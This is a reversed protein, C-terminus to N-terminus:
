QSHTHQHAEWAARDFLYEPASASWAIDTFKVVSLIEYTGNSTLVNNDSVADTIMGREDLVVDELMSPPTRQSQEQFLRSEFTARCVRFDSPRVWLSRVNYVDPDHLPSLEIKATEGCSPLTELDVFRVRYSISSHVAAITKLSTDLGPLAGRPVDSAVYPLFADPILYHRGIEISGQLSPDGAVYRNWSRRDARREIVVQSQTFLIKGDHASSQTMVYNVYPSQPRSELWQVAGMYLAPADQSADAALIATCLLAHLM